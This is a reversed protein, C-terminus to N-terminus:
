CQIIKLPFYQGVFCCVKFSLSFLMFLIIIHKLIMYIRKGSFIYYTFIDLLIKFIFRLLYFFFERERHQIDSFYVTAKHIHM